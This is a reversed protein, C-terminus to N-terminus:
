SRPPRMPAAGPSTMVRRGPGSAKLKVPGFAPSPPSLTPAVTLALVLLKTLPPALPGSAHVVASSASALVVTLWGVVVVVAAVVDVAEVDVVAGAVM